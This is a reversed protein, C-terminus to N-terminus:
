RRATPQDADARRDSFRAVLIGAGMSLMAVAPILFEPRIGLSALRDMVAMM